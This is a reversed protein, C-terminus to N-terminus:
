HLYTKLDEEEVLELDLVDLLDDLDFSLNITVIM